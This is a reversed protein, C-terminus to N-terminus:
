SAKDGSGGGGQKADAAAGAPASDGHAPFPGRFLQRLEERLLRKLAQTVAHESRPAVPRSLRVICDMAPLPTQRFLERAARKIANRTVARPALRKAVVVGLRAHQLGNTRGYLMFHATKRVPRLRFVSSFEDTKVIRRDRPYAATVDAAPARASKSQWASAARPAAPTSSRVAAAPQWGPVSAM